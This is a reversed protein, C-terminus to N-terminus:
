YDYRRANTWEDFRYIMTQIFTEKFKPHALMEELLTKKNDNVWRHIAPELAKWMAACAQETVFKKAENEIAKLRAKDLAMMPVTIGEM